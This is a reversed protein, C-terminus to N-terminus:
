CRQSSQLQHLNHAMHLHLSTFLRKSQLAQMMTMAMMPQAQPLQRRQHRQHCRHRHQLPLPAEMELCERQSLCCLRTMGLPSSMRSSWTCATSAFRARRRLRFSAPIPRWSSPFLSPMLLGRTCHHSCSLIPFIYYIHGSLASVDVSSFRFIYLFTFLHPTSFPIRRMSVVVHLSVSMLCMCLVCLDFVPNARHYMIICPIITRVKPTQPLRLVLDGDGSQIKHAALESEPVYFDSVAAAAFILARSSFTSLASAVLRMQHLYDTVSDFQLPITFRTAILLCGYVHSLVTLFCSFFM